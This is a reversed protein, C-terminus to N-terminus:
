QASVKFVNLTESHIIDGESSIVLRYTGPSQFRMGNVPAFLFLRITEMNPDIPIQGNIDSRMMEKNETDLIRAAVQLGNGYEEKEFELQFVLFFQPHEIPFTDARIDDFIGVLNHRGNELKTVYECLKCLLVRM